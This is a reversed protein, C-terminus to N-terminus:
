DRVLELSRMDESPVRVRGCDTLIEWLDHREGEVTDLLEALDAYCPQRLGHYDITPGIPIFRLGFRSLLRLLSPEMIACVYEVGHDVAMQLAAAMLGLTIHPILREYAPDGALRRRFIKSIAFRSFEATTDAPLLKGVQPCIDFLPLRGAVPGYQPLVLRTTGCISNSARHMLLAHASHQDHQDTEIGGLNEAPDLFDNEVCYVQYRLQFSATLLAPTAAPIAEFQMKYSEALSVNTVQNPLSSAATPPQNQLIFDGHIDHQVVRTM